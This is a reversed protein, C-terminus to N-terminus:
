RKETPKQAQNLKNLIITGDGYTLEVCDGHLQYDFPYNAKTVTDSIVFASNDLFYTGSITVSFSPNDISFVATDDDFTLSVTNENDFVAEWRYMTLEDAPCRISRSCASLILASSVMLLFLLLLRYLKM